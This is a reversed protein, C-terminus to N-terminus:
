WDTTVQIGKDRYHQKWYFCEDMMANGSHYRDTYDVKKLIRNTKANRIILTYHGLM